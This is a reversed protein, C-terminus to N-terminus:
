GGVLKRANNVNESRKKAQSKQLNKDVWENVRRVPLHQVLSHHLWHQRKSLTPWLNPIFVRIGPTLASTNQTAIEELFPRDRLLVGLTLGLAVPLQVTLIDPLGGLM